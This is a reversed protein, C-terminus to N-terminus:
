PIEDLRKPDAGSESSLKVEYLPNLKQLIDKLFSNQEKLEAIQANLQTIIESKKCPAFVELLGSEELLDCPNINLVQAIQLFVQLKLVVDGSEIRSYQKQSLGIERGMSAQKINILQRYKMIKFLLNSLDKFKRTSVM